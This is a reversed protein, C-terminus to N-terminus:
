DGLAPPGAALADVAAELATFRTRDDGAVVYAATYAAAVVADREEPTEAAALSEAVEALLGDDPRPAYRDLITRATV